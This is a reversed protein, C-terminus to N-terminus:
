PESDGPGRDIAASISAVQLKHLALRLPDNSLAIGKPGVLELELAVGAGVVQVSSRLDEQLRSPM